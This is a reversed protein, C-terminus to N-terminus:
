RIDRFGLPCVAEAHDEGAAFPCVPQQVLQKLYRLQVARVKHHFGLPRIQAFRQPLNASLQHRPQLLCASIKIKVDRLVADGHHEVSLAKAPDYMIQRVVGYAM